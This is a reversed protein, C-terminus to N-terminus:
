RAQESGSTHFSARDVQQMLTALALALDRAFQATASTRDSACQALGDIPLRGTPPPHRTDIREALLNRLPQLLSEAAYAHHLQRTLVGLM